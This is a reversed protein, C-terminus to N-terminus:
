SGLRDVPKVTRGSRTTPLGTSTTPLSAMNNTALSSGERASQAHTTPIPIPILHGRNRRVVGRDTEVMYSRPAESPSTVHGTQRQDSVWVRQGIHLPKLPHVGHRRDFNMKEKDRSQQEWNKLLDPDPTKPNLRSGVTPLSTRIRRGMLLEAPSYGNELPTARYSQLARYADDTKKMSRKIIKVASEVFGNSQPFKPSSTKHHFGWDQSFKFFESSDIKQFQPGNDSFVTEPTGHRAFISKLHDIVSTTSLSTLPAVEPFRSYYDTVLLYWKGALYFLDMGVQQWPREPFPTPMLPERRNSTEQICQHCGRVFNEIQTSIGPWWVSERARARCKTIGQHGHHIKSLIDERMSQPVLIRSGKM